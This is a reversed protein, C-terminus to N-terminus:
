DDELVDLLDYMDGEFRELTEHFERVDRMTIPMPSVDVEFLIDRGSEGDESLVAVILGRTKCHPCVVSVFWLGDEYGLVDVDDVDFHGECSVCRMSEILAQVFFEDSGGFSDTNNFM